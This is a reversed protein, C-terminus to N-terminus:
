ILLFKGLDLTFDRAISVSIPISIEEYSGVLMEM